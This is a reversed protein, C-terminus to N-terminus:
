DALDEKITEYLTNLLVIGQGESVEEDEDDFIALTTATSSEILKIKYVKEAAPDSGFIFLFEDWLSGDEVKKFDPDYQVFYEGDEADRSTIEISRHSLAKGVIRWTRVFSDGIRIRKSDDRYDVLDVSVEDGTKTMTERQLSVPQSKQVTEPTVTKLEPEAPVVVEQLVESDNGSLDVPITLVPIAKTMQYDKEKDPFFDSTTGCASLMFLMPASISLHYISRKLVM